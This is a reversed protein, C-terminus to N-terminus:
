QEPRLPGRVPAPRRFPVAVFGRTPVFWEDATEIFNICTSMVDVSRARIGQEYPDRFVWSDGMRRVMLPPPAKYGWVIGECDPEAYMRSTSDVPPGYFEGTEPHVRWLLGQVWVELQPGDTVRDGALDTWYYANDKTGPGPPGPPGVPGQPGPVELTNTPVPDCGAMLFLLFWSRM